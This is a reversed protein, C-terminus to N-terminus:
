PQSLLCRSFFNYEDTYCQVNSHRLIYYEDVLPDLRSCHLYDCLIGVISPQELLILVVAVSGIRRFVMRKWQPDKWILNRIIEILIAVGVKVVPSLIYVLIQFKLGTFNDREFLLYLCQLSFMVQINSNGVLNTFGVLIESEGLDMGSLISTIQCFTSFIVMFEGPQLERAASEPKEDRSRHVNQNETYTVKIMFIQYSISALLLFIAIAILKGQEYCIGCSGLKGGAPLYQKELNCQLCAPGTFKEDCTNNPGGLCREDGKTDNCDVVFLETQSVKSRYYGKKISINAGGACFAGEPCSSCKQDSPNLSYTGKECYTCGQSGTVNTEGPM